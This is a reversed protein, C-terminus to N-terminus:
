CLPIIMADLKDLIEDTTKWGRDRLGWVELKHDTGRQLIKQPRKGGGLCSKIRNPWNPRILFM